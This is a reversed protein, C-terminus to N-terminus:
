SWMVWASQSLAREARSTEFRMLHAFGAERHLGDLVSMEPVRKGSSVMFDAVTTRATVQGRTENM